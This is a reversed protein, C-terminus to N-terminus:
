RVVGLIKNSEEEALEKTKCNKILMKGNKYVSIECKSKVIVFDPVEVIMEFKGKLKQLDIKKNTIVEFAGKSSCRKILVKDEM